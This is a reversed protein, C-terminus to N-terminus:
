SGFYIHFRTEDPDDSLTISDLSLDSQGYEEKAIKYIRNASLWISRMTVGEIVDRIRIEDASSEPYGEDWNIYVLHELEIPPHFNLIKDDLQPYLIMCQPFITDYLPVNWKCEISEGEEDSLQRRLFEFHMNRNEQISEPISIKNPGIPFLEPLPPTCKM